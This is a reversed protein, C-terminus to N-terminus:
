AAGLRTRAAACAARLGGVDDQDVVDSVLDHPLKGAKLLDNQDTATGKAPRWRLIRCRGYLSESIKAAYGDGAADADVRLIVKASRPIHTHIEDTWSGSYIGLVATPIKPRRTACAVFDPEGEAVVIASPAFTGRLMAIAIENAMVLGDARHDRAPLRKPGDGAVVRWARVSAMSGDAFYVPVILRHGSHRWSGSRTAAFSPLDGDLPLARALDRADVEDPDILRQRLHEAVGRDEACLGCSAWLGAVESEKPYTREPQAPPLPMPKREPRSAHPAELEALVNWLGALEAGVRLVAPFDQDASLSYTLGILDFIDGTIQCGFCHYRLTRDPGPTLSFSQGGHEPCHVIIGSQNRIVSRAGSGILGLKEAVERPNSLACAIERKHQDSM